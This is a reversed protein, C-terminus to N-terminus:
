PTPPPGDDPRKQVYHHLLLRGVIYMTGGLGLCLGAVVNGNRDQGVVMGAVVLAIAALWWLGSLDQAAERGVREAEEIDQGRELAAQEALLQRLGKHQDAPDLDIPPADPDTM